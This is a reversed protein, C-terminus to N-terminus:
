EDVDTHQRCQCNYNNTEKGGVTNNLKCMNQEQKPKYTSSNPTVWHVNKM